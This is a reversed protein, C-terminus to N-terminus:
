MKAGYSFIEFDGNDDTCGIMDTGVICDGLVKIMNTQKNNGKKNYSFVNTGNGNDFNWLSFGPIGWSCIMQHNRDFIIDGIAKLNIDQYNNKSKNPNRLDYIQIKGDGFGLVINNDDIYEHTYLENHCTNIRNVIKRERIDIINLFGNDVTFSAHNEIYPNWKVSGIIESSKYYLDSIDNRNESLKIIDKIFLVGDFGGTIIKKGDKIDIERIHDNHFPKFESLEIVNFDYGLTCIGLSSGQAFIVHYDDIWKIDRVCDSVRVNWVSQNIIGNSKDEKIDFFILHNMHLKSEDQEDTGSVGIICSNLKRFCPQSLSKEINVNNLSSDFLNFSFIKKLPQKFDNDYKINNNDHYEDSIDSTIDDSIYHDVDMYIDERNFQNNVQTDLLCDVKFSSTLPPDFFYNEFTHFGINDDNKEIPNLSTPYHHYNINFKESVITSYHEM